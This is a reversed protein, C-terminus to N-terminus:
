HREHACSRDLAHAAAGCALNLRGILSKLHLVNVAITGYM